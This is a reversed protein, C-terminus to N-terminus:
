NGVENRNDTRKKEEELVKKKMRIWEIKMKHEGKENWRTASFVYTNNPNSALTRM